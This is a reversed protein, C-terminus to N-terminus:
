QQQVVPRSPVRKMPGSSPKSKEAQKIPSGSPQINQQPQVASNVRITDAITKSDRSKAQQVNSTNASTNGAPQQMQRVLANRAAQKEKIKNVEASFSRESPKQQQAQVVVCAGAAMVFMLAKIIINKKMDNGKLNYM